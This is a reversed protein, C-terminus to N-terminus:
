IEVKELLLPMVGQLSSNGVIAVLTMDDLYGGDRLGSVVGYQEQRFDDVHM